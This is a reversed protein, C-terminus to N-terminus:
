VEWWIADPELYEAVFLASFTAVLVLVACWAPGYYAAVFLLERM